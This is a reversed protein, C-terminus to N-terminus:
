GSRIRIHFLACCCRTSSASSATNAGIGAALTLVATLAFGPNKRLGRGSYKLDESLEDFIRLGRAERCLEKTGEISGFEVREAEARSMGSRALDEIYAEIHQRMEADMESEMRGRWILSRFAAASRSILSM